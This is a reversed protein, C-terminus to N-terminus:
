LLYYNNFIHGMFVLTSLPVTGITETGPAAGFKWMETKRMTVKLDKGNEIM